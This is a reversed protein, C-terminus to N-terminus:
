SGEEDPAAGSCRQQRLRADEEHVSACGEPLSQEIPATLYWEQRGLATLWCQQMVLVADHNHFEIATHDICYNVRWTLPTIDSLLAIDKITVTYGTARLSAGWFKDFCDQVDQRTFHRTNSLDKNTRTRQKM